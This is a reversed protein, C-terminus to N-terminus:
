VLAKQWAVAQAIGAPLDIGTTWGLEAEAKRVDLQVFPNDMSRRPLFNVETSRGVADFVLDLVEGISTAVGSGINWIARERTDACSLVVAEALDDIYLYDRAVDTTGFVQIPQGAMTRAIATAIFGQGRNPWQGPGYPNSIRLVCSEVGRSAQIANLYLEAAAKGAAYGGIPNFPADEPTPVPARGYVTGGSSAYILRRVGCLAARDFIRACTAVNIRADLGFDGDANGPNSSWALYVLCDAGEFVDDGIIGDPGISHWAAAPVGAPAACLDVGITHAGAAALAHLASRGLFGGGGIVIVRRGELIRRIRSFREEVKGVSWVTM